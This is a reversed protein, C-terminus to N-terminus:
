KRLPAGVLAGDLAGQSTIASLVVDQM